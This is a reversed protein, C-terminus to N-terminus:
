RQSSRTRTTTAGLQRLKAEARQATDTNPYRRVLDRLDRTGATKMGLALEALAKNYLCDESKASKPYDALFDDYAAIADKYNGQQYAIQGLYYQADPALDDNPFNKLFDSFEQRAMDYTGTTFDRMANQYLTQSSVAPQAPVPAGPADNQGTPSGAGPTAPQLATVKADISQLHSQVDTVQQQLKVVLAHLDQMNGSLSQTAQTVSDLNNGGNAQAQQFTQQLTGMQRNMSNVGDLSQQVLTKLTANNTDLATRMDQQGQLLQSVQQQLEIIERAVADTPQPSLLSGAIAGFLMAALTLVVWRTRM